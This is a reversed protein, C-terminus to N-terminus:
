VAVPHDDFADMIWAIGDYHSIVSRFILSPYLFGERMANPLGGTM